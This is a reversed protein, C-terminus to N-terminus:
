SLRRLRFFLRIPSIFELNKQLLAHRNKFFIYKVNVYWAFLHIIDVINEKNAGDATILEIEENETPDNSATDM